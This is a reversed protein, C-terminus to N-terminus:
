HAGNSVELPWICCSLPGFRVMNGAVVDTVDRMGFPTGVVYGREFAYFCNPEGRLGKRVLVFAENGIDKAKEKIMDYVQPMKTKIVAIEAEVNKKVATQTDM